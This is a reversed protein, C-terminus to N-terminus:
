RSSTPTASNRTRRCTPSCSACTAEVYGIPTTVLRFTGYLALSVLVVVAAAPYLWPRRTDLPEDALVAPSAFVAVAIFTLGWVGFLAVCQALAVPTTLAYGFANWPFGTLVHGRLWEAATLAAALTLIRLGGRTWLARAVAFGLATFLALYAPLGCVAFPMLWGFAKVDVLFASGIWYLGALFYGFGFWWGAAAAALIASRGAAASGDLLWVAVPFTVFMVPWVTIFSTPDTNVPTIALTSAAGALFAILARRFGWALVIPQALRVFTV